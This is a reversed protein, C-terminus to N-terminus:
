FIRSRSNNRSNNKAQSLRSDRSDDRPCARSSTRSGSRSATTTTSAPTKLRQQPTSSQQLPADRKASSSRKSSPTMPPLTPRMGASLSTHRNSAQGTTLSTRTDLSKRRSTIDNSDDRRARLLSGDRGRTTPKREASGNRSSSEQKKGENKSPTSRYNGTLARNGGSSKLNGGQKRTAQERCFPIHREAAAANFNRSCYECQVYDSPVATKPPPPLPAGTKLAYDVRKSSSVADIFNGHRERWNTQPRPFVGGNKNKEHQVKKIDAYTLDSGSARQKGSDFPKRHLSALKRCASEHKELSSKIFRRDCIPCPFTPENPDASDM